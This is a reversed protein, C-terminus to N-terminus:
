NSKKENLINQYAYIGSLVAGEMTAYMEERTYDGALFLGKIPTKNCPRNKDNNPGLHYFKDKHRIIRYNILNNKIDLNIKQADKIALELIEEDSLNIYKDPNGLIISLRGKKNKFTSRSEETFSTLVTFPAFTTRDKPMLPKKTDIQITIASTTKMNIISKFFDHKIDKLLEKANAIDVALVVDDAYIKDKNELQVGLVKNDKILLSEVKTNLQIDSSLQKIKEGIPNALVEGMGKKYAGIRIKPLRFIGPYFLGFFVKASYNEKPLFFIGTSLSTIIYDIVPETINKAKAYNEISYKDLKKPHLKYDKFGLIFLKSLSLKDKLTLYKNNGIIRKIFKIPSLFPDIGLIISDKENLKIEIEDELMIINDLTVGVEKLIKPLEKYYGIHRHFGAEVEMNNDNWSSSRGGLFKEKELLLVKKNNSALKYALTLGALGAGVVIVDYNKMCDGNKLHGLKFNKHIKTKLRLEFNM